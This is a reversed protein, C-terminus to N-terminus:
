RPFCIIRHFTAKVRHGDVRRKWGGRPPWSLSLRHHKGEWPPAIHDLPTLSLIGSIELSLISVFVMMFFTPGIEGPMHYTHLYIYIIYIYIYLRWSGSPPDDIWDLNKIVRILGLQQGSVLKPPYGLGDRQLVGLELFALGLTCM